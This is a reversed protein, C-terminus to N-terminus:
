FRYQAAIGFLNVDSDYRGTLRTGSSSVVGNITPDDLRIHTYGGSVELADSATWTLGVSIWDRDQDPLRPSRNADNTPTEDRALGARLTLADSVKFEAGVSFFSTDAWNFEENSLVAGNSRYITVDELTSWGTRSWDAMLTFRDSFAYSVSLTDISPNTLPAVAGQDTFAAAQGTAALVTAVNGPVTFDATGALDHDIESRHSYGIALRDTPRWHVGAIWGTGNDDGTVEAFGDASQPAFGPVGGAALSAGFDIANSLTAEAHEYIFGLGVSFRDTIDYSASLTLDVVKLDSEVAHYRGVWNRDYETKLGFPASVMAGITLGSDGIPFIASFAPIAAIDGANGGDGGALPTGFATTGGGSFQASVDVATLDVQVTRQGFGGMAAPNNAVVSADGRAAATGAFARGMAKVSNEKLQFGAAHVPGQVLAAPIGLALASLLILRTQAQM